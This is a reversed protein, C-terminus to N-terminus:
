GGVAASDIDTGRGGDLGLAVLIAPRGAIDGCGGIGDTSRRGALHDVDGAASEGHAPCRAASIRIFQWGM